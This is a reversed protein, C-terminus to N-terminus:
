VHVDEDILHLAQVHVLMKCWTSGVAQAPVPLPILSLPPISLPFCSCLPGNKPTGENERVLATEHDGAKYVRNFSFMQVRVCLLHVGCDRFDRGVSVQWPKGGWPQSRWGEWCLGIKGNGSFLCPINDATSGGHEKGLLFAQFTVAECSRQGPCRSCCAWLLHSSAPPSM